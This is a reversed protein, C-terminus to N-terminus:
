GSQVGMVVAHWIDVAAGRLPKCSSVGLVSLRLRLPTLPAAGANEAPWLSAVGGAAAFGFLRKRTFREPLQVLPAYGAHKRGPAAAVTCM